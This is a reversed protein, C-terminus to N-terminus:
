CSIEYKLQLEAKWQSTETTAYQAKQRRRKKYASYIVIFPVVVFFCVAVANQHVLFLPARFLIKAHNRKQVLHTFLLSALPCTHTHRQIHTLPNWHIQSSIRSFEFLAFSVTFLLACFVCFVCEFEWVYTHKHTHRNDTRM